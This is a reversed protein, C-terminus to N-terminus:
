EPASRLSQVSTILSVVGGNQDFVAAGIRYVGQKLPRPIRVEAEFTLVDGPTVAIQEIRAVYRGPTIKARFDIAIGDRYSLKSWGGTGDSFKQQYIIEGFVPLLATMFLFFISSTYKM